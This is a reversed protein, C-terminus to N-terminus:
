FVVPPAPVSLYEPRIDYLSIDGMHERISQLAVLM